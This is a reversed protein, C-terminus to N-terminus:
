QEEVKTLEFDECHVVVKDKGFFMGLAYQATELKRRSVRERFRVVLKENPALSIKTVEMFQAPIVPLDGHEPCNRSVGSVCICVNM